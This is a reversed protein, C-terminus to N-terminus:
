TVVRLILSVGSVALLVLILNEFTQGGIRDRMRTGLPIMALTAVLALAAATSRDRDYEGSVLLVLLQALGSVFFLATVSFVYANKSLRYGHFWMAVIPGSVGVAGQSFGAAAGAAPAWRRTTSPELRLEPSRLRQIVFAFVTVALGIVIPEEPAQLLVLTGIVAGVISAVVLIPLDRTEHRHERVDLNLLLNAAANPIAIVAVANEVGIFLTLFPIAVLPFGMGTVSKIFSGVLSAAVVLVLEAETVLRHREPADVM